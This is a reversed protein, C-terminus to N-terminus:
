VLLQADYDMLFLGSADLSIMKHDDNNTGAESRPDVHLFLAMM